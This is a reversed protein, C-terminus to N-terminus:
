GIEELVKEAEKRNEAPLVRRVVIEIEGSRENTKPNGHLVVNKGVVKAKVDEFIDEIQRKEMEKELWDKSIGLLEEAQKGFAVARIVATSDDLAFGAVLNIGPKKVEGCNNCVFSEEFNVLSKGCKPCVNYHLKGRMLDVIKGIVEVNQMDEDLKNLSVRDVKEMSIEKVEDLKAGKPEEIIRAQWGLHLEIGKMGEKTYAGEIKVVAGEKLEKVFDVVDNWATARVKGSDDAIEFSMVRGLKGEKNFEREEYLRLVKAVVDVNNMEKALENLKWVNAEVEPLGSVEKESVSLEGNHGLNLQKEDKWETVYCNKIQLVAGREIKQESLKKADDNWLTLRIEGSGDVVVLNCLWGKKKGKEFRKPSFIHKARVTLDVANMGADLKSIRFSEVASELALDVGHEKAVIYAAGNQTLLGSFKDEKAKILGAVEERSKGSKETIKEVISETALEEGM